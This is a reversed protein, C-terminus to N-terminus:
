FLATPRAGAEDQVHRRALRWRFIVVGSQRQILPFFDTSFHELLLTIVKVERYRAGGTFEGLKQVRM